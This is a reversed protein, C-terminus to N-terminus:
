AAWSASSDNVHWVNAWCDLTTLFPFFWSKHFYASFLVLLWWQIVSLDPCGVALTRENLFFFYFLFPFLTFWCPHRFTFFCSSYLLLINLCKLQPVFPSLESLMLIVCLMCFFLLFESNRVICSGHLVLHSMLGVPKFVFWTQICCDDHSEPGCFLVNLM